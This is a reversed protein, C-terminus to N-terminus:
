WRGAMAELLTILVDRISEHVVDTADFALWYKM